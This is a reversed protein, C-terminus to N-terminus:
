RIQVGFKDVLAQLVRAHLPNVEEDTLTREGSRYLCSITLSRLGAPIQRGKYYDTVGAEQLLPGATEKIVSLVGEAHIDEKLVLSIDRLIGPYVAMEKFKKKLEVHPFVKDLYVEATFVEKNKIDLKNLFERNVKRLSCLKEQGLFVCIEGAKDTVLRYGNLGLRQFIMELIGKLHLFGMKEKVLGQELLLSKEGCLAIGLVLEQRPSGQAHGPFINAIEFINVSGQKQNLNHAVCKILSPGILPRLIEQEKSLPNLIEVVEVPEAEPSYGRILDRDILSYTIVENLGLGLLMNKISAILDREPCPILRPKVQPLSAPIQEYGSIRALEEILDIELKADQRFAPLEVIFNGKTKQKVKFGLHSLIARIRSPSINIGLVKEVSAAALAIAKNKRQPLATSKEQVCRGAALEQILTLAKLSAAVATQFDAGREFRYASETQIGLRGRSRRVVVPNFVASELLIAKTNERVETDKGGIVGAVAVPKDKDAIVLIEGDLSVAKDSITTIKENHKARRVIITDSNLKDLDFAHLPHGYTFLCYNTIDVINNVSRCGILELRKRMWEPAPGVKIGKIIKATYLPCDRKDEVKIYFPLQKKQSAVQSKRSAVKLKSNTIAAVERAIGIVSLWDPRNSTIEIEFVYDAGREDLSVVEIGAMTLKDALKQPPIKVGVFDKLWSLTFKM